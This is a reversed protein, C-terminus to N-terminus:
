PWNLLLAREWWRMRTVVGAPSYSLCWLVLVNVNQMQESTILFDREFAFRVYQQPVGGRDEVAQIKKLSRLPLSKSGLFTRYTVTDGDVVIHDAVHLAISLERLVVADLALMIADLRWDDLGVVVHAALLIGNIWVLLLVASSVYRWREFSPADFVRAAVPSNGSAGRAIQRVRGDGYDRRGSADFDIDSRLHRRVAPDVPEVPRDAIGFGKCM